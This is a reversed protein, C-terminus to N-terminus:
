KRSGFLPGQKIIPSYIGAPTLPEQTPRLQELVRKLYSKRKISSCSDDSENSERRSSTKASHKEAEVINFYSLYTAPMSISAYLSPNVPSSQYPKHLIHIYLKLHLCFRPALIPSNRTFSTPQLIFM